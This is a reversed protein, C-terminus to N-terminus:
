MQPTVGILPTQADRMMALEWANKQMRESVLPTQRINSMLVRRSSSMDGVLLNTAPNDRLLSTSHKGISVLEQESIQPQPLDIDSFQLLKMNNENQQEILKPLNKQKIKQLRKKDLMKKKRDEEEILKQEMKRLLKNSVEADVFPTEENGVKHRGEPVLAAFPIESNYDLGKM